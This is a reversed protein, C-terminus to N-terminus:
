LGRMPRGSRETSDVVRAMASAAAAAAAAMRRWATATLPVALAMNAVPLECNAKTAASTASGDTGHLWTTAKWM